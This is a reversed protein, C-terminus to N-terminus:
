GCCSQLGTEVFSVSFGAMLEAMFNVTQKSAASMRGDTIADACVLCVETSFANSIEEAVPRGTNTM